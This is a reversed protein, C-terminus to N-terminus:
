AVMLRTPGRLSKLQREARLWDVEPSGVPCGREQWFRYALAAIDPAAPQPNEPQPVALPSPHYSHTEKRKM